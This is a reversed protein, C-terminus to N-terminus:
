FRRASRRGTKTTGDAMKVMGYVQEIKDHFFSGASSSQVWSDITTRPVPAATRYMAGNVFSVTVYQPNMDDPDYEIGSLHRSQLARWM